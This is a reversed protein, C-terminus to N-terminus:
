RTRSASRLDDGVTQWDSALSAADAGWPDAFTRIFRRPRSLAGLPGLADSIGASFSPRRIGYRANLAAYFALLTRTM